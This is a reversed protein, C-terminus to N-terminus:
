RGERCPVCYEAKLFPDRYLQFDFNVWACWEEPSLKYALAAAKHMAETGSLDSEGAMTQALLFAAEPTFDPHDMRRQLIEVTLFSQSWLNFFKAIKVEEAITLSQSKFYTEIKKFCPRIQKFDGTM